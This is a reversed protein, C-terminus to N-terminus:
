FASGGDFCCRLEFLLERLLLLPVLQFVENRHVHRKLVFAVAHVM